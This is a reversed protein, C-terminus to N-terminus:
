VHMLARYFPSQRIRMEGNFTEDALAKYYAGRNRGYKGPNRISSAVFNSIITSCVPNLNHYSSYSIKGSLWNIVETRHLGKLSPSKIANYMDLHNIQLYDLPNFGDSIRKIIQLEQWISELQPFANYLQQPFVDFLHQYVDRELPITNLHSQQIPNLESLYALNDVVPIKKVSQRYIVLSERWLSRLRGNISPIDDGVLINFQQQEVVTRLKNENIKTSILEAAKAVLQSARFNTSNTIKFGSQHEQFCLNLATNAM